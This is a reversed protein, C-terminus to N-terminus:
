SFSPWRARRLVFVNLGPPKRFITMCSRVGKSRHAAWHPWRTHCLVHTGALAVRRLGAQRPPHPLIVERGGARTRLAPSIAAPGDRRSQNHPTRTRRPPKLGWGGRPAPAFPATRAIPPEPPPPQIATRAGAPIAEGLVFTSSWHRGTLLNESRIKQNAKRRTPRRSARRLWEGPSIAYFTGRPASEQTQEHFAARRNRHAPRCSVVRLNAM